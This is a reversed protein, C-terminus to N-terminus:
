CPTDKLGPKDAGAIDTHSDLRRQGELEHIDERLDSARNSMPTCAALWHRRARCPVVTTRATSRRRAGRAPRLFFIDIEAAPFPGAGPAAARLLKQVQTQSNSARGSAGGVAGSESSWGRRKVGKQCCTAAGGDTLVARPVGLLGGEDQKLCAGGVGCGVM